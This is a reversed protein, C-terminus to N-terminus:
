KSNDWSLRIKEMMEPEWRSFARQYEETSRFVQIRNVSDYGARDQTILGLDILRKRFSSCASMFQKCEEALGILYADKNNEDVTCVLYKDLYYVWQSLDWDKNGSYEEQFEELTM